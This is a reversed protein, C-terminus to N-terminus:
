AVVLYVIFFLKDNEKNNNNNNNCDLNFPKAGGSILRVDTDLLSLLRM